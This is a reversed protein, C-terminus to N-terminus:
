RSKGHISNFLLHLPYICKLSFKLWNFLNPFIDKIKTDDSILYLIAIKHAPYILYEHKESVQPLIRKVSTFKDM